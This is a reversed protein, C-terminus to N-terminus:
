RRMFMRKDYKAIRKLDNNSLKTLHKPMKAVSKIIFYGALAEGLTGM